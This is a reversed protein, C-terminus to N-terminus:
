RGADPTPSGQGGIAPATVGPRAPRRTRHAPGFRPREPEPDPVVQLTPEDPAAPADLDQVRPLALLVLLFPLAQVRQRALIGFNAFSAFAFTFAFVYGLSYSLYPTSRVLKPVSRLRSWSAVFFGLIAVCEVSTLLEQTSGVEFPFPRFFVTAFAPVMDLPTRVQVATFQSGGESTRSATDTLTTDVSLREQGFFSATQGVLFVGLLVVVFLGVIRIAPGAMTRTAPRRLAFALVIGVFEVLALHPRVVIIAAVGVAFWVVGTSRRACICAIGYSSLGIAFMMWAEKGISAPWYLLSPLFLVLITYRRVNGDPIGVKFARTLLVFGLFGLWAYAFGGAVISTGTFSYVFGTFVKIWNTGILNPVSPFILRRFSDVYTLGGNHYSVMDAQGNYLGFAILYRIFASVLKAIMGAMVIGFYAADGETRAIRLAIPVTLGVLVPVVLLGQLRESDNALFSDVFFGAFLLGGLFYITLVWAPSRRIEGVM